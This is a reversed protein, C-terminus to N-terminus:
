PYGSRKDTYEYEANKTWSVEATIEKGINKGKSINRRMEEEVLVTVKKVALIRDLFIV